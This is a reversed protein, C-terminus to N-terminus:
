FDYELGGVDTGVSQKIWRATQESHRESTDKSLMRALVEDIRGTAPVTTGSGDMLPFNKNPGDPEPFKLDPMFSLMYRLADSAHDDKKHIREQPNNEFQLKRSSYTAWRLHELERILNVCNETVHWNPQRTAPNVRLYQNVKAVGVAVDNNGPSIYIGNVAYETQISTGTVGNHQAIAPDGIIITPESGIAKSKAHYATAHQEITWEAEYHEAFTIVEGEPSVLHWLWATPNRFGHDMTAYLMWSPIFNTPIIPPVVHTGRSFTKYVRGGLQVFRGHERASREDPDLGSLYNEAGEKTIYPNDLMDAEVIFTGEHLKGNEQYIDSYIWTMGDVPTMSIWWSGNTDVLRANCENFVPKPPEEDYHIFHRSTGAFKDIDQDYSMFEIFSGNNFYLTRLEKNYSDEWSGNKLISPPCWRQFQPLLIKQVGQLFDVGVVRGCVPGEINKRFPHNGMVTQIDEVIAGTTKGSRNGGIYLRKTAQSRHFNEQKEHPRYAYINPTTAQSRIGTRLQQLGQLVSIQEPVIKKPM